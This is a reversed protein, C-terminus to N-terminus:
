PWTTGRATWSQDGFHTNAPPAKDLNEFFGDTISSMQIAASHIADNWRVMLPEMEKEGFRAEKIEFTGPRYLVVDLPYDVNAASTKTDNFAILGVRLAEPLTSRYTWLRDLIPKGYRTDGIIVYPTGRGVEVWNGEPYVLFMHPEDDDELQGGVICHLDFSLGSERLWQSDEKRVRKVEEAFANAALYMRSLSTAPDQLRHEFYTIAKDRVSRLGSTLVFLSHNAIQHVSIKKAMSIETGSTIRSDASALLGESCRMGLCFTM